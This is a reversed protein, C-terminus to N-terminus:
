PIQDGRPLHRLDNQACQVSPAQSTKSTKKKCSHLMCKSEDDSNQEEWSPMALHENMVRTIGKHCQSLHCDLRMFHKGVHVCSLVICIGDKGQLVM